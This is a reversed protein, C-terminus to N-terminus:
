SPKCFVDATKLPNFALGKVSIENEFVVDPVLSPRLCHTVASLFHGQIVQALKKFTSSRVEIVKILKGLKVLLM